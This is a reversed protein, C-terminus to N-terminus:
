LGYFAPLGYFSVDGATPAVQPLVGAAFSVLRPPFYARPALRPFGPAPRAACATRDTGLSYPGFQEPHAACAGDHESELMRQMDQELVRRAHADDIGHEADRPLSQPTDVSADHPTLMLSVCLGEDVFPASAHSEAGALHVKWNRGSERTANGMSSPTVMWEYQWGEGHHADAKLATPVLSHITTNRWANPVTDASADFALYLDLFPQWPHHYPVSPFAVVRFFALVSRPIRARWVRVEDLLGSFGDGLLGRGLTLTRTLAGSGAFLAQPVDAECTATSADARAAELSRESTTGSTRTGDFQVPVGDRYVSVSRGRGGVAIAYHRWEGKDYPFFDVSVNLACYTTRLGSLRGDHWVVHPAHLRASPPPPSPPPPPPPPPLAPALGLVLGYFLFPDTAAHMRPTPVGLGYFPRPDTHRTTRIPPVTPPAAHCKIYVREKAHVCDAFGVGYAGTSSRACALLAPETGSCGLDDLAFFDAPPPPPEAPQPALVGAGYGLQRCAVLADRTDFGDDCVAGWGFFPSAADAAVYLELYGEGGGSLHVGSPSLLRLAGHEPQPPPSPPPPPVSTAAALGYFLLPLPAYRRHARARPPPPAALPALSESLLSTLAEALPVQAPLGYFSRPFPPPPPPPPPPPTDHPPPTDPPLPPSALLGAFAPLGLGYFASLGYFPAGGPTLERPTVTRPPATSPPLIPPPTTPPRPPAPAPPIPPRFARTALTDGHFSVRVADREDFGIQLGNGDAADGFSLWTEVRAEGAAVDRRVWAEVTFDEAFRFNEVGGAYGARRRADFRAAGGVGRNAGAPAGHACPAPYLREGAAAASSAALLLAALPLAPM